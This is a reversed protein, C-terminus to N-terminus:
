NSESIRSFVNFFLNINEFIFLSRHSVEYIQFFFVDLIRINQRILLLILIWFPSLWVKRKGNKMRIVSLFNMWNSDRSNLNTNLMNKSLMRTLYPITKLEWTPSSHCWLPNSGTPMRPPKAGVPLVGEPAGPVLVVGAAEVLIAAQLHAMMVGSMVIMLVVVVVIM